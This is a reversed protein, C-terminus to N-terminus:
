LTSVSASPFLDYPYHGTLTKTICMWTAFTAFTAFFVVLLGSRTVNALAFGKGMDWFLHRIGNALHYYIAFTWGALLIQAWWESGIEVWFDFYEQSYAVGWLWAALLVSGLSLAVGTARHTISMVSTIQPRYVQLHPSLPRKSAPTTTM